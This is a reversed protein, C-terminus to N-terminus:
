WHASGAADWHPGIAQMMARRERENRGLIKLLMGVGFDFGELALYGVWLVAILILWLISLTM